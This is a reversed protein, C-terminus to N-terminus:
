QPLRDALPLQLIKPSTVAGLRLRAESPGNADGDLHADRPHIGGVGDPFLRAAHERMFGYLARAVIAHGAANPHELDVACEGPRLGSAEFAPETDFTAFGRAKAAAIVQAHLDRYPYADFHEFGNFTPLVVLLIPVGRAEAADRMADFAALVSPWKDGNTAHMARYADGGGLRMKDHEYRWQAILRLVHSNEWPETRHFFQHLPQIPETEPDNLFYAVVVLDPEFDFAKHALVIAEDSSSYGGVGFNLTQFTHQADIPREALLGELLRTFTQPEEVGFGFTLSDGLVAIRTVGNPKALTVEPGRLGLANVAVHIGKVEGAKSPSLEYALGPLASARHFLDSWAHTKAGVALPRRFQVPHLWRLGIEALAFTAVIAIAFVGIRRAVHRKPSRTSEACNTSHPASEVASGQEFRARRPVSPPRTVVNM